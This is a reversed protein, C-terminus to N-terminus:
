NKKWYHNLFAKTWNPKKDDLLAQKDAKVQIFQDLSKPIRICKRVLLSKM